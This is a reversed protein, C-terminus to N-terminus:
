QYKGSLYDILYNRIEDPSSHKDPIEVPFGDDSIKHLYHADSSAIHVLGRESLIPYKSKMLSLSTIDNLEFATFHPDPPFSGLMSIIGNSSKDIHAPYCVGSRKKVEDYAESLSLGSANILLYEEESYIKDNEDILFQHGFINVDNKMKFRKSDVLYGFDIATNLDRFLCIAHVDENTTIEMGAIPIIGYKDAIKFFSPCNMVTNHDTLAVIDLGNLRAMGVINGPTMDDDGCPSLCSHIHLDCLFISM